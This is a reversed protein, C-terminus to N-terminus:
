IDKGKLREMVVFWEKIGSGLYLVRLVFSDPNVLKYMEPVQVQNEYLHTGWKYENKSSKENKGKALASEGV